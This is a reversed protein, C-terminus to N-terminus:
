KQKVLNIDKKMKSNSSKWERFAEVGKFDGICEPGRETEKEDEYGVFKVTFCAIGSTM